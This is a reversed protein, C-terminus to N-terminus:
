DPTWDSIGQIGAEAKPQDTRLGTASFAHPIVFDIVAVSVGIQSPSAPFRGSVFVYTM